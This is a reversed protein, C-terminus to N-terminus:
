RQAPFGPPTVGMAVLAPLLNSTGAHRCLKGDRVWFFGFSGLSVEAGSAPVGMFTGTHRGTLRYHAAFADDESILWVLEARKDSLGDAEAGFHAKQSEPGRGPRGEAEYDDTMLEDFADLQNTSTADLFRQMLDVHVPDPM